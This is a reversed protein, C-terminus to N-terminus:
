EVSEGSLVATNEQASSRDISVGSSLQPYRRLDQLVLDALLDTIQEFVDHPYRSGRGQDIHQVVPANM